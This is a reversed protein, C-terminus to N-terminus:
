EQFRGAVRCTTNTGTTVEWAGIASRWDLAGTNLNAAAGPDNIVIFNTGTADEVSVGTSPDASFTCFISHLMDGIAGTSGMVQDTQSAAVDEYNWRTETVMVGSANTGIATLDEGAILASLYVKLGGTVTDFIFEASKTVV